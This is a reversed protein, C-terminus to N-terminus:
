DRAMAVIKSVTRWNRATVAVGISREVREALKSRGIGDPAHLYFVMGTLAFQESDRKVRELAALDPKKPVSALFYLHLTKPEAEAEMPKAFSIVLGDAQRLVEYPADKKLLIEIRSTTGKETLESTEISEIIDSQDISDTAVETMFLSTDPFYLIVGTPFPQKVSTYTLEQNGDIYVSASEASEDTRLATIMKGPAEEVAETEAAPKVATSQACGMLIALFVSLIAATCRFRSVHNHFM